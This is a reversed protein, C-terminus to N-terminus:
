EETPEDNQIRMRESDLHVQGLSIQQLITVTASQLFEKHRHALVGIRVIGFRKENEKQNVTLMIDVHGLKGVWRAMHVAGITAAELASKTVQTPSIVLVHREAAMQSLAIWSRDEKEIGATSSDEPKLIDAYDVIVVDPM